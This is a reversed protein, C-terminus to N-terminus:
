ALPACRCAWLYRYYACVRQQVNGPVRFHRMYELIQTLHQAYQATHQNATMVLSAASGIVLAGLMQGVFLTSLSMGMQGVTVPEGSTASVTTSLSHHLAWLYQQSKDADPAVVECPPVWGGPALCEDTDSYDELSAVLWTCCALMHQTLLYLLTLTILKRLVPKLLWRGLLQALKSLRLLRLLRLM